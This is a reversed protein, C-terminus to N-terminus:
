SFLEHVETATKASRLSAANGPGLLLSALRSLLSIQDKGVAAIGIVLDVNQGQWDVAPVFRILSLAQRKVTHNDALTGHPVAIGEGVFTSVLNERELMSDIYAPVVAGSQVLLSGAQRIADDRSGVSLDLRISELPLMTGLSEAALATVATGREDHELRTRQPM